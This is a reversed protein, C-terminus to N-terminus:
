KLNSKISILHKINFILINNKIIYQIKEFSYKLLFFSFSVSNEKQLLRARESKEREKSGESLKRITKEDGSGNGSNRKQVGQPELM